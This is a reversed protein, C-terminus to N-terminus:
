HVLVSSNTSSSNMTGDNISVLILIQFSSNISNSVLYNASTIQSKIPNNVFLLCQIFNFILFYFSLFEAL